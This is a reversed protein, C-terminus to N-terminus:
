STLYWYLTVCWNRWSTLYWHLRVCWTDINHWVYIVDHRLNLTQELENELCLRCQTKRRTGPLVSGLKTSKLVLTVDHSLHKKQRDKKPPTPWQGQQSLMAVLDTPSLDFTSEKWRFDVSLAVSYDNEPRITFRQLLFNLQDSSDNISIKVGTMHSLWM